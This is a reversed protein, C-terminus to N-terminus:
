RDVEGLVIDVGGLIVVLDAIKCNKSMEGFSTLNIFAPPRVHFRWPNASGDSVIYFGLEGKPGEVAGYSEGAPVRTQYTPKGALIPGEPINQIVQQIIRLSQRMEQMRIVLRDYTDGHYTVPIDFDFRDYISYPEAKRLDFKIGSARLVPGATSYAVAQQPTLVGVGQCRLKVIENELLYKEFDDMKRPLREFALHRVKELIGEPLDQAVGGFRFYNCMMRSGTVAQFIDLILEREELGYLAATFYVGLDNMLFGVAILHSSIRTLEAMMVRIYEARETPVIGALKEVALAYGFNNSLSAMYDLRDTYPMIQLYTNRECIKEHNRHLYGIVPEVKVVTEGDMEVLMRFVGHTSPHQPGLNVVLHESVFESQTPVPVNFLNRLDRDTDQNRAPNFNEPYQVNDKFPNREEASIYKGEPWRSKYPKADQEYFPEKWDKRLPYGEFGEWLLIRKLNPHEDFKIGLLDWAEREQFEAGPYLSVLSPVHPDEREMQVKVVLPAGGSIRRLHYVVEMKQDPLYDVGTVSSLYTYGCEEKLAKVVTLLSDSPIVYGQYGPRSDIQIQPFSEFVAIAEKM